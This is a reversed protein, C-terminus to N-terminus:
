EWFGDRVAGEGEAGGWDEMAGMSSRSDTYNNHGDGGPHSGSSSLSSADNVESELHRCLAQPM